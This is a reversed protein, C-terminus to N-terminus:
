SENSQPNVKTVAKSRHHDGEVPGDDNKLTDSDASVCRFVRSVDLMNRDDRAQRREPIRGVIRRSKDM